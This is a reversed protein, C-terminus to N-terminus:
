HLRQRELKVNIASIKLTETYMSYLLFMLMDEFVLSTSKLVIKNWQVSCLCTNRELFRFFLEHGSIIFFPSVISKIPLPLYSIQNLRVFLWLLEFQHFMYLELVLVKLKSFKFFTYFSNCKELGFGVNPRFPLM